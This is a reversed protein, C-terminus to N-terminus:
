LLFGVGYKALDSNNDWREVVKEIDFRHDPRIAARGGAGESGLQRGIHQVFDGVGGPRQPVPDPSRPEARIPKMRVSSPSGYVSSTLLVGPM